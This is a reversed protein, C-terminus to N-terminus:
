ISLDNEISILEQVLDTLPAPYVRLDAQLDILDALHLRISEFDDSWVLDHRLLGSAQRYDARLRDLGRLRMSM